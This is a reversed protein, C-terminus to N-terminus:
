TVVLSPSTNRDRLFCTLIILFLVAPFLWIVIVICLSSFFLLIVLDRRGMLIIAFSSLAFLLRVFCLVFM